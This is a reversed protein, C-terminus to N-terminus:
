QRKAFVANEATSLVLKYGYDGTVVSCLEKMRQDNEVCFCTPRWGRNLMDFCLDVSTGETDISVFEFGEFWNSIDAFTVTRIRMKGLWVAADARKDRWGKDTTSLMDDTVYLTALGWETAMAACVLDVRDDTGLDRVLGSMLHPAPEVMVIHWGLEWLARTNSFTEFHYAGIDLARKNKVDKVAELIAMQEDNQTYIM